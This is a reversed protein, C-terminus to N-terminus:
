RGASFQRRMGWAAVLATMALLLLLGSRSLTPITPSSAQIARPPSNSLVGAACHYTITVGTGIRAGNRYPFATGTISYPMATAPFNYLFQQSGSAAAPNVTVYQTDVPVGNISVDAVLNPATPPPLFLEGDITGQIRDNTCTGVVVGSYSVLYSASPSASVVVPTTASFLNGSACALDTGFGTGVANGGNAPYLSLGLTVPDGASPENSVIWQIPTPVPTGAVSPLTEQAVYDGGILLLNNSGSPLAMVGPANINFTTQGSGASCTGTVLGTSQVSYQASSLGPLASAVTLILLFISRATLM